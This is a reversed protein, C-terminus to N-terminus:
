WRPRESGTACHSQESAQFDLVASQTLDTISDLRRFNLFSKNRAANRLRTAVFTMVKQLIRLLVIGVMIRRDLVALSVCM